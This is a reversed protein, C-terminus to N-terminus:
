LVCLYLSLSISLYLSLLAITQKRARKTFNSSLFSQIQFGIEKTDAVVELVIVDRIRNGRRGCWKKKKRM